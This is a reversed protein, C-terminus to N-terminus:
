VEKLKRIRLGFGIKYLGPINIPLKGTTEIEGFLSEIAAEISVDANSYTNIYCNVEPFEMILYPNGFSIIIIPKNLSILANIIKKQYISLSVTGQYARVKIFIPLLLIDSNKANDIIKQEEMESIQTFLNYYLQVNKYRLSLCNNFRKGYSQDGNDAITICLIKKQNDKLLPIINNENKLLTISKQAIKKSIEQHEKIAVKSSIKYIDTYRQKHLGLSYKVGLIKSVSEDIRDKSIKGEKVAGIIAKIAIDANLPILIMDNGAQIAKISSEAISFYKTVGKMEMADTTILGKFGIEKKLIGDIIVPSLSAPLNPTTEISPVSLHTVMVSMAGANISNIFPVFELTQLREKKFNLIPLDNHSDTETDGHGPFHKLTSIMGGVHTGKIFAIALKSVLKPDEGYSRVNIIPNQPNNNIDVIPAYNQHVGIARGEIAIARGMEYALKDDRAAGLAMNSPFSTAGKFRMALGREFDATILLPVRSYSQLKNALMAADYIGGLSFIFGGINNEKVQRFLERYQYSDESLYNSFTFPIILQGIKEKLSLSNLTNRVWKSNIYIKLPDISM